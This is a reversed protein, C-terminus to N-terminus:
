SWDGTLYSNKSGETECRMMEACLKKSAHEKLAMTMCSKLTTSQEGLCPGPLRESGTSCERIVTPAPFVFLELTYRM